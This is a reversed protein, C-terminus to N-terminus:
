LSKVISNLTNALFLTKNIIINIIKLPFITITYKYLAVLALVLFFINFKNKIAKEWICLFQYFLPKRSGPIHERV